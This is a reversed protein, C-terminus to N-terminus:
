LVCSNNTIISNACNFTKIFIGDLSYQNVAKMHNYQRLGTCDPGKGAKIAINYGILRDTCKTVDLYYQERELLVDVDCEEVISLEFAANGYKNWAYQLHKNSHYNRNLRIQHRKWRTEIIKSSGIYFKGNSNNLIKYIGCKM